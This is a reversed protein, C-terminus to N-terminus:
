EIGGEGFIAVGLAAVPGLADRQAVLESGKEGYHMKMIEPIYISFHLLLWPDVGIKV